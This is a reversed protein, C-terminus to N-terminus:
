CGRGMGSLGNAIFTLVGAGGSIIAALLAVIPTYSKKHQDFKFVIIVAFIFNILEILLAGIFIVDDLSQSMRASSILNISAYGLTVTVFPIVLVYWAAKDYFSVTSNSESEAPEEKM